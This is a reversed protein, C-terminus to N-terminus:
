PLAPACVQAPGPPAAGLARQLVVWDDVRCDSGAPIAPGTVNCRAVWAPAPTPPDSLWVRLLDADARSILGDGSSDGCQCADGIGDSNADLQSPDPAFPCDDFADQIGDADADPGPPVVPVVLKGWGFVSDHGAPAVDQAAAILGSRLQLNTLTSNQSLMLAAAGAVVPAAFSTGPVGM